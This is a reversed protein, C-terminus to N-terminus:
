MKVLKHFQERVSKLGKIIEPSLKLCIMVKLFLIWSKVNFLKAQLSKVLWKRAESYNGSVYFLDAGHFYGDALVKNENRKTRPFIRNLIDEIEGDKLSELRDKGYKEREEALMGALLAYRSQDFKKEISISHHGIRLNYLPEKLNAINWFESIRLWLDYDQATKFEERYFGAKELCEKRFMVSGHCFQNGKWLGKKIEESKTKMKILRLGNGREDILIPPAGVLGVNKHSDLFKVQKELREPLSIDDADMRAVYEGKVIKLGKNLSKTLGINKENNIIAIRSDNYSGIIETTKDTSGDNVIIFEFERFSQNLISEIAERLYKEGNYVSMVVSVKPTNM